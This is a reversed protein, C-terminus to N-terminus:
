AVAKLLESMWGFHEHVNAVAQECDALARHATGAKARTPDAGTVYERLLWLANVDLNRYHFARELKNMHVNLFMRDFNPNCGFMPSKETPGMHKRYFALAEEEAEGPTANGGAERTLISKGGRVLELLGSKEHMKLVVDNAYLRGIAFPSAKLVATYSDVIRFSPTEIAVLAIELIDDQCEELGTTETDCGIIIRTTM